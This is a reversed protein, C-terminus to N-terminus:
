VPEDTIWRVTCRLFPAAEISFRAEIRRAADPLTEVYTLTGQEALMRGTQEFLKKDIATPTHMLLPIQDLAGLQKENIYNILSAPCVLYRSPTESIRYLVEDEAVHFSATRVITQLRIGVTQSSQTEFVSQWHRAMHELDSKLLAIDPGEPSASAKQKETGQVPSDFLAMLADIEHQSLLGKEM